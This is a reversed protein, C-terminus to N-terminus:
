LGSSPNKKFGPINLFASKTIVFIHCISQVMGVGEFVM